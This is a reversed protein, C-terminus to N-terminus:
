GEKNGKKVRERKLQMKNKEGATRPITELQEQQHSIVTQISKLQMLSSKLYGMRNM